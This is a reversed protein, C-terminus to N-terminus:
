SGPNPDQPMVLVPDSGMQATEWTMKSAAEVLALGLSFGSHPRFTRM